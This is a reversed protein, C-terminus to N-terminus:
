KTTTQSGRRRRGWERLSWVDLLLAGLQARQPRSGSGPGLTGTRGWGLPCRTQIQNFSCVLPARDNGNGMRLGPSASLVSAVECVVEQGRLGDSLAALGSCTGCQTELMGDEGGGVESSEQQGCGGEGDQAQIEGALIHPKEDRDQGKRDQGRAIERTYPICSWPRM